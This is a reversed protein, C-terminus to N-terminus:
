GAGSGLVLDLATSAGDGPPAGQQRLIRTMAAQWKYRLRGDPGPADDYPRRDPRAYVTCISLAAALQRPKWIGQQTAKLRIRQGQFTFSELQMASVTRSGTSAALRDLFAMAASRLGIDLADQSLQSM